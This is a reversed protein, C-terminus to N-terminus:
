AHFLPGDGRLRFWKTIIVKQGRTVTEGCHMSAPNPSGDENLNNWFVAMGTKAKIACDFKTFRTAGGEFDDNLYVMFTWTRNGRVSCASRHEDSGVGFFDFHPKFRGGVDYRQAQIGESYEARIGLTRCIKDDIETALPSQLFCLHATQSIRFEPDGLDHSVKSPRLHDGVLEILRECEGPDLFGELTYLDLHPAGINRLNARPNRLLPPPPLKGSQLATGRPTARDLAVRIVEYGYGLQRAEAVTEYMNNAQRIRERLLNVLREDLPKGTNM